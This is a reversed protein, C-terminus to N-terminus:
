YISLCLTKAQISSMANILDVIRALETKTFSKLNLNQLFKIITMNVGNESYIFDHVVDVCKRRIRPINPVAEAELSLFYMVLNDLVRDTIENYVLKFPEFSKTIVDRREEDSLQNGFEVHITLILLLTAITFSKM